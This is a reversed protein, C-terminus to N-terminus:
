EAPAAGGHDFGYSKRYGGRGEERPCSFEPNFSGGVNKM